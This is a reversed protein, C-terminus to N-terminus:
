RCFLVAVTAASIIIVQIQDVLEPLYEAVRKTALKKGPNNKKKETSVNIYM